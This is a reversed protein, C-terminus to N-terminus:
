DCTAIFEGDALDLGTNRAGALGPSHHNTVVRVRRRATGLSTLAEDPAEQDHIVICDIEGPYSQAVVGAISERVLEPRGRTPMIVSVLPWEEGAPAPADTM